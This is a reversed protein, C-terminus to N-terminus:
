RTGDIHRAKLGSQHSRRATDNPNAPNEIVLGAFNVAAMDSDAFPSLASTPFGTTAKRLVQLTGNADADTGEIRLPPIGEPTAPEGLQGRNTDWVRITTAGPPIEGVAVVIAQTTGFFQPQNSNVQM